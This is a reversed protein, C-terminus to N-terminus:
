PPRPFASAVRKYLTYYWLAFRQGALDGLIV